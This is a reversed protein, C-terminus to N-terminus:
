FEYTRTVVVADSGTRPPREIGPPRPVFGPVESLGQTLDYAAIRLPRQQSVRLTVDIGEAPLDGFRVESPWRGPRTGQLRLSTPVLGPAGVTVEDVHQDIRLVVTPASRPSSVHLEITDSRRSQLTVDPPPALVAPAPGLWVPNDALGAAREPDDFRETVYRRAWPAPETDRSLWSARGTDADLLYALDARRPHAVDFRDVVLGAGTLALVLVLGSAAILVARERGLPQRGAPLFLEVLPLLTLGFLTLLAAAVGGAALGTADFTGVSLPMLLVVSPILGVIIAAVRWASRPRATLLAVLGGVACGLVPLSFLHSTGPVFAATLVGLLALWVLGGGALAAPGVRRRRPLYWGLLALAALGAVAVQYLQPRYLFPNDAYGPRVARLVWWLGQALLAAAALPLVASGTARILQPVSLLRRRRALAILAVLALVALLALLWAMVIPYSIVSGLLRFYTADHDAVLTALDTNGLARTLGLMNAGHHQLSAPDLNAITDGPTHYRAAGQIYAFNMGALGARAFETFDTNNPLLRYFEVMSSDGNPYPAAAAFLEVLAANNRSTEFMLSPGSVGRAEWNLVVARKQVLPHQRVFAAAGLLGSEEGDTILLVLDNRLQDDSRLARVTELMAAIAAGDDSAGPGAAVSDYHAAFVVSGTPDRGPLTAVINDVRGFSAIGQTTSGGVARNIQVSFGASRLAGALYDRARDSAASGLPRPETAFEQLYGLARQASFEQGPASAPVPEPPQHSLLTVAAFAVILLASM